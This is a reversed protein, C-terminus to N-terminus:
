DRTLGLLVYVAVTLASVTVAISCGVAFAAAPIIFISAQAALAEAPAIAFFFTAAILAWRRLYALLMWRMARNYSLAHARARPPGRSADKFLAFPDLYLLLQRALPLGARCDRQLLAEVDGPSRM